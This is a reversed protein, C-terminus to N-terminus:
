SLTPALPSRGDEFDCAQLLQEIEGPSLFRTRGSPEKLAKLTEIPSSSVYEWIVARKLMHKLVTIERNVTAPAAGQEIRGAINDTDFELEPLLQPRFYATAINGGPIHSLNQSQRCPYAVANLRRLEPGARQSV